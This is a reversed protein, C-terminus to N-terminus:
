AAEAARQLRRVDAQFNRLARYDSPTWHTYATSGSPGLVRIGNKTEKLRCGAEIAEALLQRLEKPLRRM